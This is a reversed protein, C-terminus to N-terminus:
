QGSGRGGAQVADITVPLLPQARLRAHHQRYKVKLLPTVDAQADAAETLPAWLFTSAFIALVIM